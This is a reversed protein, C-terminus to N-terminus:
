VIQYYDYSEDDNSVFLISQIRGIDVEFLQGLILCDYSAGVPKFNQMLYPQELCTFKGYGLLGMQSVPVLDISLLIM